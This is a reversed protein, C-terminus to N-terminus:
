PPDDRPPEFRFLEWSWWVQWGVFLAVLVGTRVWLLWPPQRWGSGGPRDASGTARGGGVLLLPVPFLLLLYRYLSTWPDLVAALYLPYALSWARLAPGLGRAWPGLVAVALLAAGGVLLVPGLMPGALEQVRHLTPAFPVVQDGARWAGMTETYADAQGTGLWAIGPWLLGSAGCAALAVLMRGAEGPTVPQERHRRARRLALALAVLGLPLAIPRALGTVLAAAGAALWRERGLFWLVVVLLALALSETYAVQLTPSAPFTAVLLVGALAPAPGVRERLLLALLAAAAYGLATALLPAVVAFPLGTLVMLVRAALPFVPYFAWANQRAAGTEDRPVHDPYGETAIRQYWQGDWLTAVDFYRPYGDTFISPHQEAHTIWLLIGTTVLRALTWGVLVAVWFRRGALWDHRGSM